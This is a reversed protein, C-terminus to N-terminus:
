CRWEYQQVAGLWITGSTNVDITPFCVLLPSVARRAGSGESTFMDEASGANCFCLVRLRCIDDVRFHIRAEVATWSISGVQVNNM